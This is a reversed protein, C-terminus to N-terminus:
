NPSLTPCRFDALDRLGFPHKSSGARLEFVISRDGHQVNVRLRTPDSTAQLTSQRRLILRLASWGGDFNLTGASSAPEFTLTSNTRSPWSLPLPRSPGDRRIETRLGEAELVAGAAGPDMGQPVIEFRLGAAAVGPFFADRINAARQFQQVDAPNIPPALGSAAVPRWAAQTTDVYQRVHQTFFQDLVGAPGFFRTFDDVPMEQGDVRFPFRGEMARCSPLLGGAAGAAGAIAARAGGTRATSTQTALGALWRGLPQPARAAEASLRQGPDLGVPPPLVTGPPATALRAVQVYLDNIIALIGELPQGAAARLAEFRTEVVRAVPDSAKPEPPGGQAAAVRAASGTPAPPTVGEPPTGVSLERSISRLMDRLPSNPAGLINLGEAANQLSNFGPLALDDLMQQWVSAYENAYLTLVQVELQPLDEARQAAAAPGLVWSEQAGVRIADGLAPLLARYFGNVTYLGAIGETLPRGSARTFFRQGAAGAADSPRWPPINAAVTRMRAYIRDALPLRSFIRRAEDVLAGDLPYVQMNPLNLMADLHQALAVRTPEGIAGPYARAWEVQFWQKVLEKDMPGEGGVMLYVRTAEYLFDPRQFGGRIQLELRALIRPLFSRELARRYASDAGAVLKEEQSLGFWAGDGHAAPPLDRVASMYPLVRQFEADTIRDFPVGQTAQEAKTLQEALRATRTQEASWATYGFFGGGLVILLALSWAVAGVVRKRKELGRNRAALRAENFVVDKLLRGLFYSRGKQAMVAAPRRADLGFNRSIAGALRDLPSGEQTGSTFYFGRLFPAPELRTGAFGAQLFAGLPGELAAFQAPFGALAARQQPGREQQLREVVRDQLRTLLAQFEAAFLGVAGEAGKGAPFTAGWVQERGTKDLDDFFEVFGPILDSKSILVYVPLRQGLNEELEKIRRRVARAHQEREAPGLRAIMDMGFAVLVGNLPQKPRNKKLLGLFREWGAKDASADSDQTTYRGATDILVARDTLWWECLRTGGVGQLKGGDALPFELGSNALATTKGSGPPGIIVYWPQDYLFGGKGGKAKRLAAMANSLKDRLEAEEEAAQDSGSDAEAAGQMLNFDRKRRRREIIWVIILCLLFIVGCTALRAIQSEFPRYGGVEILPSFLYIIPLVMAVGMMAIVARGKMFPAFIEM